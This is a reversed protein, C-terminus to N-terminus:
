GIMQDPIPIGSHVERCDVAKGFCKIESTGTITMKCRKLEQDMLSGRPNKVEVGVTEVWFNINRNTNHFCSMGRM